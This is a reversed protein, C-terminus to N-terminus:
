LAWGATRCCKKCTVVAAVQATHMDCLRALQGAVAKVILSLQAAHLKCLGALQEAVAKVPLSLHGRCAAKVYFSM